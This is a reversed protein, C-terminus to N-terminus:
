LLLVIWISDKQIEIELCKSSRQGWVKMSRDTIFIDLQVKKEVKRSVWKARQVTFSDDKEIVDNHINQKYINM